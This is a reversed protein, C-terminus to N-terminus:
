PHIAQAAKSAPSVSCHCDKQSQVNHKYDLEAQIIARIEDWDRLGTLKRGDIFLTPTGELKLTKGEAISGEVLSGPTENQICHGLKDVDLAHERAYALVKSNLNGPSFEDQHGFMWSQFSWFQANGEQFVCEGAIAASFAWPHIDRLPYPKWYLRVRDPFDKHLNQELTHAMEKCAPCEFDTFEVISVDGDQAGWAPAREVHLELTEKAFPDRKLDLLPGALVSDGDDSIFFQQRWIEDHKYGTVWFESLGAIKTPNADTIRITIEAPWVYLRRLYNELLVKDMARGHAGQASSRDPLGICALVIAFILLLRKGTCLGATLPRNPKMFLKQYEPTFNM